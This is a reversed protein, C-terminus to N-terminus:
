AATKSSIMGLVVIKDKPIFRLPSFDGGRGFRIGPLVCRHRRISCSNPWRSTDAMWRSRFNGRCLHIRVTMSAPAASLIRELVDVYRAILAQPDGGMSCVQEQTSSDYLMALPVEDLQIYNCGLAALDAIGTSRGLIARSRSLGEPDVGANFRLFNFASPSPM